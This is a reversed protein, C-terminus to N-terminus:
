SDVSRGKKEENEEEDERRDKELGRLALDLSSQRQNKEKSM